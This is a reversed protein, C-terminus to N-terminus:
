NNWLKPNYYIKNKLYLIAKDLTEKSTGRIVIEGDPNILIFTPFSVVKFKNTIGTNSQGDFFNLWSINKEVLYKKVNNESKDYAISIIEFDNPRFSRSIEILEDTLEICPKCWTGWFDLLIYKRKNKTSFYTSTLVDNGNIPYSIDNINIGGKAKESGISDLYVTEGAKDVDVLIYMSNNLTVTDGFKYQPEGTTCKYFPEKEKKIFITAKKNYERFNGGNPFIAIKYKIGDVLYYALKYTPMIRFDVTRDIDARKGDSSFIKSKIPKIFFTRKEVKNNVFQEINNVQIYRSNENREFIEKTEIVRDNNTDLAIFERGKDIGKIALITNKMVPYDHVEKYVDQYFNYTGIQVDSFIKDGIKQKVLTDSFEASWVWPCFPITDNLEFSTKIIVKKKSQNEACYNLFFLPLIFIIIRKM